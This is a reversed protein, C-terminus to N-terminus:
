VDDGPPLEDGVERTAVRTVVCATGGDEALLLRLAITHLLTRVLLLRLAVTHLLARTERRLGGLLRHLRDHRGRRVLRRHM